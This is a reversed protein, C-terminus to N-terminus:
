TQEAGPRRMLEQISEEFNIPKQETWLALREFKRKYLGDNLPAGSGRAGPVKYQNMITFFAPYIRTAQKLYRGQNDEGRDESITPKKILTAESLTLLAILREEAEAGSAGLVQMQRGNSLIGTARFRGWMYGNVGGCATKITQWDLKSRKVDPVSYTARTLIGNPNNWPPQKVSYFTIVLRVSQPKARLYDDAPMGILTGVDKNDMLQYNSLTQVITTKLPEQPGALIIRERNNSRDPQIEVYRQKGLVLNQQQAVKQQLVWSDLSNAIVYGAEVCGDWAEELFEEVFNKVFENPISEVADDVAKAFSWPKSGQSGWARVIKEANAGFIRGILEARAKIFKRLNKFGWLILSQVAARFTYNILNTMNGVLEEAFEESVNKLLYAGLPENFAFILAGPVVGCALYGFANGLTGGLLGGLTNWTAKIQNDIETDTVNWNFNYVYQVTSVFLGWLTAFGVGILKFVNGVIGLFRGAANWLWGIINGDEDKLADQNSSKFIRKGNQAISSRKVTSILESRVIDAAGM